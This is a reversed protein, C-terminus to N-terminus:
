WSAPNCTRRDVAQAHTTTHAQRAMVTRDRVDQLRHQVTQWLDPPVIRLHETRNIIWESESNEIRKRKGTSPDKIWKSRNWIYEGNYIRNGLIGLGRKQNGYIASQAWTGGRPSPVSLENLEAAASIESGHRGAPGPLRDVATPIVV